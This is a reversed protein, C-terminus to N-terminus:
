FEGYCEEKGVLEERVHMYVRLSPHGLLPITMM